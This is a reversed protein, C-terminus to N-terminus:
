QVFRLIMDIMKHGVDKSQFRIVCNNISEDQNSAAFNPPLNELSKQIIFDLDFYTGGYKYLSVLRMFDSLHAIHYPSTFIIDRKIWEEAPTNASYEYWDVNRFHVNNYSVLAKIIPSISDKSPLGVPSM